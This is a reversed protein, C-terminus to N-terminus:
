QGLADIRQCADNLAQEASKIGTIAAHLEDQLISSLETYRTSPPRSVAGSLLPGITDANPNAAQVDADELVGKYYQVELVQMAEVPTDSYPNAAFAFGGTANAVQGNPQAPNPMVAWKGAV